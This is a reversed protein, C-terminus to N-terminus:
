VREMKNPHHMAERAPPVHRLCCLVFGRVPQASAHSRQQKRCPVVVSRWGIAQVVAGVAKHADQADAAKAKQGRSNQCTM